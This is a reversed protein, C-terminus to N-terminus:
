YKFFNAFINGILLGCILAIGVMSIVMVNFTNDFKKNLYQVELVLQQYDQSEEVVQAPEVQVTEDSSLDKDVTESSVLTNADNM